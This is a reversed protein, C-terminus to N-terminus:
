GGPPRLPKFIELERFGTDPVADITLKHKKGTVVVAVGVSDPHALLASQATVTITSGSVSCTGSADAAKAAESNLVVKSEFVPQGGRFCCEACSTDVEETNEGGNDQEGMM